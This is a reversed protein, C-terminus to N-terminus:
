GEDKRRFISILKNWAFAIHISKPLSLFVAHMRPTQANNTPEQNKPQRLDSNCSIVVDPPQIFRNLQLMTGGFFSVSSIRYLILELLIEIVSVSILLRSLLRDFQRLVTTYVNKCGKRTENIVMRTILVHSPLLDNWLIHLYKVVPTYVMIAKKMPKGQEPTTAGRITSPYDSLSWNGV